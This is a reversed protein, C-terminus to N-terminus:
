SWCYIKKCKDKSTFIGCIDAVDIMKPKENNTTYVGHLIYYRM